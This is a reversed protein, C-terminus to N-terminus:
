QQHRTGEIPPRLCGGDVSFSVKDRLDRKVSQTQLKRGYPSFELGLFFLVMSGCALPNEQQVFVEGSAM